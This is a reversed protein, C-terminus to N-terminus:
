KLLCNGAAEPIGMQRSQEPGRVNARVQPTSDGVGDEVWLGGETSLFAGVTGANSQKRRNGCSQNASRPQCNALQLFGLHKPLFTGIVQHGHRNQRNAQTQQSACM